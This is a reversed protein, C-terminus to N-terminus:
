SGQVFIRIINMYYLVNAAPLFSFFFDTCGNHHLDRTTETPNKFMLSLVENIAFHISPYMGYYIFISNPCFM